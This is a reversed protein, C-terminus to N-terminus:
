MTDFDFKKSKHRVTAPAEPCKFIEKSDPDARIFSNITFEKGIEISNRNRCSLQSAVDSKRETWRRGERSKVANLIDTFPM